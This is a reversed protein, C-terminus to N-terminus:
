AIALYLYTASSVNINTAALQNVAFGSSVPDVSDDTTIEAATSNLSLHPDEAAVIGRATDWVYWDGAANLRKILVFRAGAAFGCNITQTTGNGTYAGIKSIGPLSAFLYAVCSNGSESINTFGNGVTFATASVGDPFYVSYTYSGNSHYGTTNLALVFTQNIAPYAVFWASTTGRTKLIMLEPAVGLNHSVSQSSSGNGTYCVVDFFGPARKFAYASLPQGTVGDYFLHNELGNFSRVYLNSSSTTEAATSSTVSYPTTKDTSPKFGRLKDAVLANRADAGGRFGLMVMDINRIGASALSPAVAASDGAATANITLVDTGSMPAKNPRRIAMYVYTASAAGGKFDFGTATPNGYETTTTEANSLNARLLADNATMNWSRMTDLMIWDGTTSAAKALLFQPEWGLSTVSANGSADTTFSGCQILGTTSPDHAFLYAVYSVGSASVFAINSGLALTSFSSADAYSTFSAGTTPAAGTTNLTFDNSASNTDDIRAWVYWNGATSTAKAIIFGPKVGLSHSITQYSGTGVWTVVDFFKAAKRFTWSAFPIASTALGGAVTFGSSAVSTFAQTANTQAANSDTVLRFGLTRVTDFISNGSVGASNSVRDKIWVMGGKGALDIGNNITLSAGSGTYLYTSFVDEAYLTSPSPTVGLDASFM